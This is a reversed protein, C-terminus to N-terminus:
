RVEQAMRAIRAAVGRPVLRTCFAGVKNTFSPVVMPKGRKMGEYGARAVADADMTQLRKFLPSDLMGAAKQFGTRTPGPCLCTVTVGTGRTENSLALSWSLVYAKTAYSVAMLPGPQFAATSAVNLIRGRGRAVMGPLVARALLTPALVNLDVMGRISGAECGAFPSLAGVGANNVLVDVEAGALADVIRGAAAPDSLDEVRVTAAIGRTKRLEDALADLADKSRAVLVVDRGDAAALRAFAAGLGGSAGTVLTIPM